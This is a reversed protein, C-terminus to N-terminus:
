RDDGEANVTQSAIKKVPPPPATWFEPSPKHGGAVKSDYLLSNFLIRYTGMPQGRWQPRFGLLLVHGNGHQVDLAAAYGNIYERGLLFGSRLVSGESQYKALAEGKFKETTTFVPSSSVFVSASAPMGAMVPHNINSEIQMISGGTFFDKRSLDKVINKVPLYLSEIAFDSSQNLCVLTGGNKVFADLNRIGTDGLGGEYQPPVYGKKYGDKISGPRESAMVIVDFREHLDASMFDSNHISTYEFGFHDLLWQTWGM